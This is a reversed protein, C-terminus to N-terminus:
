GLGGRNGYDVVSMASEPALSKYIVSRSGQVLTFVEARCTTKPVALAGRFTEAADQSTSRRPSGTVLPFLM